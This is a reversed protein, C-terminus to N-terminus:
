SVGGLKLHTAIPIDRVSCYICCKPSVGRTLSSRVLPRTHGSDKPVTYDLQATQCGQCHVVRLPYFPETGAEEPRLFHNAWPQRGLDVAVELDGSDCVRCQM